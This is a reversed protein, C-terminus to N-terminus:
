KMNHNNNKSKNFKQKSNKNYPKAEKNKSFKITNYITKNRSKKRDPKKKYSPFVRKLTTLSYTAMKKKM